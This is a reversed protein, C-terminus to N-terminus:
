LGKFVQLMSIELYVLCQRPFDRFLHNLREDNLKRSGFQFVSIDLSTCGAAAITRRLFQSSLLRLDKM